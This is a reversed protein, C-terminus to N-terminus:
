TAAIIYLTKQWFDWIDIRVIWSSENAMFLSNTNQGVCYCLLHLFVKLCLYIILPVIRVQIIILMLILLKLLANCFNVNAIFQLVSKTHWSNTTLLDTNMDGAICVYEANNNLCIMSIESLINKFEQLNNADNSDM